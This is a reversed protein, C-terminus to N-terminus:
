FHNIVSIEFTHTRINKNAHRHGNKHASVRRHRETEVTERLPQVRSYRLAERERVCILLYQQKVPFLLIIPCFLTLPM